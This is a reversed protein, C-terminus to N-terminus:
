LPETECPGDTRHIHLVDHHPIGVFFRGALEDRLVLAAERSPVQVRISVGVHEPAVMGTQEMELYLIPESTSQAQASYIFLASLIAICFLLKKM